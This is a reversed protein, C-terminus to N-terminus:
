LFEGLVKEAETLPITHSSFKDEVEPLLSAYMNGPTLTVSDYSQKVYLTEDVLVNKGLLTEAKFGFLPYDKEMVELIPKVVQATGGLIRIQSRVPLDKGKIFAHIDRVLQEPSIDEEVKLTLFPLANKNEWFTTEYYDKGKDLDIVLGGKPHEEGHATRDFSGSTTLKGKKVPKHIHGALIGYRVISEWLELVHAKHRAQAHLQFEYGGHFCILDVKDMNHDKLVKLALEFVAAPTMAGMNDPVYMISLNDLHEYVQICLTDIYRVDLGKPACNLFHRPQGRDHSSTGELWVVIANPNIQEVRHLAMNGWDMVKVFDKNPADVVGEMFDGGFIIMDVKKLDHAKFLFTTLNGLVHETPTVTHLTHHDSTWLLRM